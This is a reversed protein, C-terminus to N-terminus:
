MYGGGSVNLNSGTVYSSLDSALFLCAGAVEDPQGVRGLPVSREIEAYIDRPMSKTMRTEVVGVSVANVLVNYPAVERALAKTFGVIGAKAAAYNSQGPRGTLGSVSSVNIVRGWRARMMPKIVAKACLFAGKLNTDLVADWDEEKLFSIQKDRTVGANNVLIDVTGFREQAQRVMGAVFGADAVDGVAVEIRDARGSLEDRLDSLAKSETRCNLMVNAGNALFRRVVAAGIGRSGGTVIATRGELM